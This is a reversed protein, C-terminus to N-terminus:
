WDWLHESDRADHLSDMSHAAGKQRCSVFKAVKLVAVVDKGEVTWSTPADDSSSQRFSRSCNGETRAGAQGILSASMLLVGCSPPMQSDRNQHRRRLVAVHGVWSSASVVAALSYQNTVVNQKPGHQASRRDHQRKDILRERKRQIKTM